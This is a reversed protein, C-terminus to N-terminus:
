LLAADPSEFEFTGGLLRVDVPGDQRGHRLELVRGHSAKPDIFVPKVPEFGSMTFGPTAPMLVFDGAQLVLPAQGEVALRCSGELVTAFSPHGYKGYRVGWKGAGSIVKGALVARPQLQTIVESLPDAMAPSEGIYHPSRM